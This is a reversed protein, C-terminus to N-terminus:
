AERTYCKKEDNWSFVAARGYTFVWSMAEAYTKFETQEEGTQTIPLTGDENMGTEEPETRGLFFEKFKEWM